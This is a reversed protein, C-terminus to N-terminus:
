IVNVTQIANEGPAFSDNIMRMISDILDINAQNQLAQQQLGFQGAGLSLGGLGQAAQLALANSERIANGQIGLQSQLQLQEEIGSGGLGRRAFDESVNRRSSQLQNAFNDNINQQLPGGGQVMALLSQIAEQLPNPQAIQENAVPLPNIERTGPGSGIPIAQQLPDAQVGGPREDVTPFGRSSQTSFGASLPLSPTSFTRPVCQPGIQPTGTGFPIPGPPAPAGGPPIVQEGQELIFAGTKPVTGGLAM